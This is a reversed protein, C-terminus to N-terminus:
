YREPHGHYFAFIGLNCSGGIRTVKVVIDGVNPTVGGALPSDLTTATDVSGVNTETLNSLGHQLGGNMDLKVQSPTGRLSIVVDAQNVGSIAPVANFYLIDADTDDIRQIIGLQITFQSNAALDLSLYLSTIDIREYGEDQIRHPFNANDADILDIYKTANISEEYYFVFVDNERETETVWLEGDNTFLANALTIPEKIESVVTPQLPGGLIKRGSLAM